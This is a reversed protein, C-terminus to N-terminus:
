RFVACYAGRGLLDNASLDYKAAPSVKSSITKLKPEPPPPAGGGVGPAPMMPIGDLVAM